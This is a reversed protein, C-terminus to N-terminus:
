CMCHTEHRYLHGSEDIDKAWDLPVTTQNTPKEEMPCGETYAERMPREENMGEKAQGVQMTMKATGLM